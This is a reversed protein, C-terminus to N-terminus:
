ASRLRSRTRQGLEPHAAEFEAFFERAPRLRGARADELGQRIGERADAQAADDRLQEIAQSFSGADVEGLIGEEERFGNLGSGNHDFPTSYRASM